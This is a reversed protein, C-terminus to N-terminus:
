ADKQKQMVDQASARALQTVDRYDLMRDMVDVSIESIAGNRANEASSIRATITGQKVISLAVSYAGQAGLDSYFGEEFRACISAADAGAVPFHEAGDVSCSASAPSTMCAAVFPLAMFALSVPAPKWVM